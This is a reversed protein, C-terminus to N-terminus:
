KEIKKVKDTERNEKIKKLANCHMAIRQLPWQLANYHMIIDQKHSKLRM